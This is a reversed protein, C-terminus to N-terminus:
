ELNIKCQNNIKPADGSKEEEQNLNKRDNVIKNINPYMEKLIGKLQRQIIARLIDDKYNKRFSELKKNLPYDALIQEHKTKIFSM